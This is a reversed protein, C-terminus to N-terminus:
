HVYLLPSIPLLASRYNLQELTAFGWCSTDAVPLHERDYRPPSQRSGMLVRALFAPDLLTTLPFSRLFLSFLAPNPMVSSYEFSARPNHLSLGLFSSALYIPALYVVTTTSSQCRMTLLLISYTKKKKTFNTPQPRFEPWVLARKRGLLSEM